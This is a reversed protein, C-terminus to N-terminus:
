EQDGGAGIMARVIEARPTTATEFEGTKRGNYLTVIRNSCKTIEDLESSILVVAIKKEDALRQMLRHIEVKTKVDIGKTPEDFIVLKPDGQSARGIIVKQQNGGSLFMIQQDLSPTKVGYENVVKRALATEKKGSIWSFSSTMEFMGIGINQRVSLSPLIGQTKREEPLYVIGDRISDAPKGAWPRGNFRVNGGRRPRYGFVTQLLESRGAGVLGAFGVVEGTRVEFSVDDFGQGSLGEVELVREGPSGEPRFTEEIDIEEGSMKEVIWNASVNEIRDAGVLVGNRLVSVADGVSFLEDLKHSIFVIAKGESRLERVIEFLVSAEQDTLSTTPEDMLLVQFGTRTSARAIQLLQQDSVSIDKVTDEPKARIRFSELYPRAKRYLQAKSVWLRSVGSRHFPMFLNEAVTLDPFLDIEQPVYAVVDFATRNHIADLGNIRVGGGDATYVGTLIKVLTSKGAGNEGMICHVEGPYVNLDVSDLATVGPFTKTIQHAKVIAERQDM